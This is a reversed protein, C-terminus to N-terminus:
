TLILSTRCHRVMMPLAPWNRVVMEEGGVGASRSRPLM